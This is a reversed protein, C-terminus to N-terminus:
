SSVYVSVCIQVIPTSKTLIAKWRTTLRCNKTTPIKLLYQFISHVLIFKEADNLRDSKM